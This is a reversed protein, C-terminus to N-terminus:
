PKPLSLLTQPCWFDGLYATMVWAAMSKAIPRYTIFAASLHKYEEGEIGKGREGPLMDSWPRVVSEPQAWTWLVM